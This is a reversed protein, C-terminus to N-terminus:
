KFMDDFINKLKSDVVPDNVTAKTAKKAPTEATVHSRSEILTALHDAHHILIPLNTKLSFEPLGPMLYSENGKGYLGDHLKIALYEAESFPVNFEQLLFISRDPVKMFHLSPNIKYIQGKKVQWDQDNPIYYEEESSGLKGLDHNLAAFVVEELTCDDLPANLRTWVDYLSIATEVVRNVHDIYGGPFCNHRTNHSSAPATCLKESFTEYMSLLKSARPESIYKTIFNTFKEYNQEIVKVDM